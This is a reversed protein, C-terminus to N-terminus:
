DLATVPPEVAIVPAVNTPEARLESASPYDEPRIQGLEHECLKSWESFWGLETSKQLCVSYANLSAAELPEAVETMRDCFAEVKEDAFEGSRVDKPIEATFLADSFNQSIQGLRAAATISNAADKIGLVAEYKKPPQGGVKQKQSVWDNFRKMSKEAVKKNQPDFNLNAPFKLALYEELDRDAEAIKALGYYYRAGGEDGGTKGGVKEFAKAAATFAAMADKLKRDDRKVVTLKIKSDPGCQTPQDSGRSRKKNKMNIARERVIKVCTGNIQKVPCSQEWLLQGIKAHAIVLRDAGGKTGYGRIYERLHKIVVNKDGQKEYVSTLSFHANAAEKPRKAGFMKIFDRTNEIAKADDGIGKRYFVADSMADYADKEGAYKRAYEELKAASQEYFAIDGYAKGIRALAKASLKSSAYYKQLLNYASIAAGISRGDEFCVGANYLIEDNQESEPDRNYIDLYAQGCAVFKAFDSSARADKELQEARKRMSQAKLRDLTARLDDKGQLFKTDADLKDVLAIMEDYKQTRNYTDLLLNASFEATEHEKHKDLIDMFLPIAKDFHNYRRYINAKLFKMGVLEDDKPDKIYDIYVDFAALMREEKEPIPQPQPVKDYEKGSDDVKDAQNRV